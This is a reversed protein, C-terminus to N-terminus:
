VLFFIFLFPKKQDNLWRPRNVVRYVCRPVNQFLRTWHPALPLFLFRIYSLGRTELFSFPFFILWIGSLTAVLRKLFFSFFLFSSFDVTSSRSFDRALFFFLVFSFRHFRWHFVPLPESYFIIRQHLVSFIKFFHFIFFFSFM